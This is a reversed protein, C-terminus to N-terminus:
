VAGVDDRVQGAGLTRVLVLHDLIGGVIWGLGWAVLFWDLGSQTTTDGTATDPLLGLLSLLGTSAWAAALVAWLPQLGGYRRANALAYGAFLAGFGLLLVGAPLQFGIAVGLWVLCGAAFVLIARIDRNMMPPAQRVRGFTHKYYRYIPLSVLVAGVFVLLQLPTSIISHRPTRTALVANIIWAAGFPVWGLGQLQNFRSAVFRLKRPNQM